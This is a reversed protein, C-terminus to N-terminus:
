QISKLQEQAFTPTLPLYVNMREVDQQGEKSLIYRLFERVNPDVQQGPAHKIYFFISRSLPYTRNLVSDRSPVVYRQSDAPAISLIKLGGVHQVHPVGSWAIGYKDNKLEELMHYSSGRPDTVMKTDSEVYERYNPNWKDGGHFVALEFFNTMGTNAYGYTHIPKDAWEGTLGLQGWTRINDKASRARDPYWKYGEYGGTREAGFIDDLQKMSLKTIPNDKNVVIVLAWTRGKIDYAGTAVAVSQLDYKFTENFSLYETLFPERGASGIDAVGAILGGEAGDSSPFQDNFSADPQFKRFGEEWAKVMGGLDSGFIRISGTVHTGPKYPALSDDQAVATTVTGLLVFLVVLSFVVVIKNRQGYAVTQM